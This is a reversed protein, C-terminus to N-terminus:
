VQTAVAVPAVVTEQKVALVRIAYGVLIFLIGLGIVLAAIGFAVVSTFLSARLFSGNMITTRQGQLKLVDADKAIDADSTGATKLEAKKATIDDGLEAYTRGGTATLAHHNIANAQAFATFPDQVVKGALSGPEEPTVAAVEIKEDKLQSAVAGWTIGGAVILVVGAIITLLAIIRAGKFRDTVTVNSM